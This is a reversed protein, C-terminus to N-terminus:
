FVPKSSADPAPMEFFDFAYKPKSTSSTRTIRTKVMSAWKSGFLQGANLLFEEGIGDGFLTCIGRNLLIKVPEDPDTEDRHAPYPPFYPGHLWQLDEPRQV